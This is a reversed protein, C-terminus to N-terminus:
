RSAKFYRQLIQLLANLEVPKYIFGALGAQAASDPTVHESYGTCLIIPLEPKLRLMRQALHMGSLGPMAEDTIVVDFQEPQQEFVQWAAAPSNFATVQAGYGGLFEELLNAIAIEDDIVLVRMGTIDGHSNQISQATGAEGAPGDTLPLLVSVATGMGPQSEIQIHGAAAHVLGHVVSLGMGTGKGVGKTTFFPDFVSKINEPSIGSGTDRVMLKAFTGSYPHRCSSCIRQTVQYQELSIEIKGYEGMADRANICLNLIIQHLHVAQIRAKLDSSEVTYSLDITSPISSRLLSIVEKIVATLLIAPTDAKLGDPAIRSFTLMQSVLEKARYSGKLIESLYRELEAPKNSALVQKSLEAYGMIAGLINNFDHAIGATLHGVAEMKTAQILQDRLLKSDREAQKRETIDEASSLLGTIQGTDDRLLSNNWAFIREEGRATVVTNESHAVGEIDGSILRDFVQKVEDVLVPPLFHDFWNKGIIKQEPLGLMECGKQNILTIEGHKNLSIMMVAAIDLYDKSQQQSAQLQHETQKRDTIDRAILVVHQDQNNITPMCSFKVQFWTMTQDTGLMRCEITTAVKTALTSAIVQRALDRDVPELWDLWNSGIVNAHSIGPSVHNIYSIRGVSDLVVISDIVSNMISRYREDSERLEHEKKKLAVLMHNLELGLVGIEDQRQLSARLAQHGERNAVAVNVLHRLSGTLGRAMLYAFVSGTLIALLTYLMGNRLIANLDTAIKEQGVGVRAWGILENSVMIPSAVDVLKGSAYLVRQQPQGGLLQQSITDSLYLNNKSSDTHAIVRGRPSVVMAYHLEPFGSQSHLVEKLGALDNALVWSTSSTALTKALGEAQVISEHHLFRSQRAVLDAVFITMLVAHVLAIGLILQRRISATWFHRTWNIIKIM